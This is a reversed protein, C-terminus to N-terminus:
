IYNYSARNTWSLLTKNNTSIGNEIKTAKGDEYTIRTIEWIEADESPKNTGNSVTVGIYLFDDNSSDILTTPKVIMSM